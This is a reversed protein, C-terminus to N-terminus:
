GANPTEKKENIFWHLPTDRIWASVIDSPGDNEQKRLLAERYEFMGGDEFIEPGPMVREESITWIAL